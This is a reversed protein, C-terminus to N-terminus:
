SQAQQRPVFQAPAWQEDLRLDIQGTSILGLQIHALDIISVDEITYTVPNGLHKILRM